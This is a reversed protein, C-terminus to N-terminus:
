VYTDEAPYSNASAIKSEHSTGRELFLYLYLTDLSGFSVVPELPPRAKRSQCISASWAQRHDVVMFAAHAVIVAIVV